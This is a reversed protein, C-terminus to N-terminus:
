SPLFWDTYGYPGNYFVCLKVALDHTDIVPNLPSPTISILSSTPYSDLGVTNSFGDGIATGNNVSLIEKYVGFEAGPGQNANTSCCLGTSSVPCPDGPSIEGLNAYDRQTTSVDHPAVEFYYITQNNGLGPISFIIGGGPGTEGIQYPANTIPNICSGSPPFSVCPDNYIELDTCYNYQADNPDTPLVAAVHWIPGVQSLPNCPQYPLAKVNQGVISTTIQAGNLMANHYYYPGSGDICKYVELKTENPIRNCVSCAQSPLGLPGGTEVQPADHPVPTTGPTYELAM